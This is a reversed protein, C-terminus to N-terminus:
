KASFNRIRQPITIQKFTNEFYRDTMGALFDRVKEAPTSNKKYNESVWDLGIMHEYIISDKRTNCLDSLYHNFIIKYMREIKKTETLLQSNKYIYEYNYTKCKDVCKYAESSFAIEDKGYSNNIIDKALTDIILWNVGYHSKESEFGFFDKCDDPFDPLKSDILKVEIADELDRGLYAILDSVRVVCGELTMPMPDKGKNISKIKSEYIDWKFNRDPKLGVKPVEGNHCLIGDLVQITLDKDEIDDLFHVSQVNHKFEPLDYEKCITSLMTEGQHGFPVHGIDHGL